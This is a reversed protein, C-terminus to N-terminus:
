RGAGYDLGSELGSILSGRVLYETSEESFYM